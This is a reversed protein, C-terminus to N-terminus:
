PSQRAEEHLFSPLKQYVFSMYTETIRHWTWLALLPAVIGCIGIPIIEYRNVRSAAIIAMSVASAFLMLLYMSARIWMHKRAKDMKKKRENHLEFTKPMPWRKGHSIRVSIFILFMNLAIALHPWKLSTGAIADDMGPPNLYIAIGLTAPLGLVALGRAIRIRSRLSDMWELRGGKEGRLAFELAGQPFPDVESSLKEKLKKIPQQLRMCQEFPSLLTDAVKDFVVGFLYAIGLVGILAGPQLFQPNINLGGFLPLVFACLALVGALVHEIAVEATKM